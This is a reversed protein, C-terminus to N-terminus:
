RVAVLFFLSSFEHAANDGHNRIHTDAMVNVAGQQHQLVAALIGGPYGCALITFKVQPFGSAQNSIDEVLTV